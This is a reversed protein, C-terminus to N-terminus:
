LLNVIVASAEARSALNQPRFTNDPYGSMIKKASVTKVADMAWYSLQDADSFEQWGDLASMKKALCIMLAMQERTILDDPAFNVGDLGHVIGNAAATAIYDKAWHNSTDAFVTGTGGQLKLAKVLITCFEARTISSDPRFTRDPYGNMVGVAALQKIKEEAWHGGIDSFSIADIPTEIKDIETVPEEPPLMTDTKKDDVPTIAGASGEGKTTFEFSYTKGLKLGNNFEFDPGIEIVYTTSPQLSTSKLTLGLPVCGSIRKFWWDTVEMYFNNVTIPVTVKNPLKVTQGTEKNYFRVNHKLNDEFTNFFGFSFYWVLEVQNCDVLDDYCYQKKTGQSSILTAAPEFDVIEVPRTASGSGSEKDSEESGTGQGSGGSDNDSGGTAMTQVVETTTYGTAFVVVTHSGAKTLVGADIKINGATVTYQDSTLVTGDVTIGSIAARWDADDIFTLNIDNGLVNGSSDAMLAPPTLLQASNLTKVTIEPCSISRNGAHDIAEVKFQYETDPTLNTIDVNTINGNVTTLLSRNRYINYGTVGINDRAAPWGLILGTDSVNSSTLVSGEAWYPKTLSEASTTFEFIYTIPTIKSNNFEFGKQIEIVYTTSPQLSTSKLALGLPARGSVQWFYWDTVEMYGHLTGDIYTRQPLPGTESGVTIINPLVVPLGSDKEYFKVFDNLNSLVGRFFGSTFYWAMNVNDYDIPNDFRYKLVSQTPDYDIETAAPAYDIMKGYTTMDVPLMNDAVTRNTFSQLPTGDTAAVTGMIYNITIDGSVPSDLTLLIQKPNSGLAADTVSHPTTGALVSFEGQKGAPDAMARDFELIIKKGLHDTGACTVCLSASADLTIVTTSLGDRSENNVADLAQVTFNYSAAPQLGSVDYTNVDYVTAPVSDGQYVNYGTVGAEDQAGSWVLILSDSSLGTVNLTDNQWTPATLDPAVDAGSESMIIQPSSLLMLVTLLFVVYAHRGRTKYLM